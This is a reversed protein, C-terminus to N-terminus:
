TFNSGPGSGPTGGGGSSSPTASATSTSYSSTSSASSTTNSSQSPNWPQGTTPDRYWNQVPDDLCEGVTVLQYGKSKAQDIMFQTFGHVTQNMIDHSLEIWSRSSADVGDITTQFFNYSYTYDGQWDQTDLDFNLQTRDM